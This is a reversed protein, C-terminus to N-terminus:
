LLWVATRQMALEEELRRIKRRYAHREIMEANNAKPDVLQLHDINLCRRDGCIHHIHMGFPKPGHAAEWVRRYPIKKYALPFILCNGVRECEALLQELQAAWQLRRAESLKQKGEDSMARGRAAKRFAAKAEDTKPRGRLADGIAKRHEESMPGRPGPGRGKKPAAQLGRSIAARHEESLQQGKKIGM